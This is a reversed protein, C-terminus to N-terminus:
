KYVDMRKDSSIEVGEEFGSKLLLIGVTEPKNDPQNTTCSWILLLMFLDALRMIKANVNISIVQKLAPL